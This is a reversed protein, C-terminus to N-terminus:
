TCHKVCSCPPPPLILAAGLYSLHFVCCLCVWWLVPATASLLAIGVTSPTPHDCYLNRQDLFIHLSPQVMYESHYMSLPFPQLAEFFM